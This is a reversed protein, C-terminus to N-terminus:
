RTTNITSFSTPKARIRSSVAWSCPELDHNARAAGLGDSQHLLDLRMGDREIDVQRIDFAIAHKARNFSSMEVRCMGTHIM